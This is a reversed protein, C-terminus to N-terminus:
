RADLPGTGPAGRSVPARRLARGPALTRARSPEATADAEAEVAVEIEVGPVRAPARGLPPRLLGDRAVEFIEGRWVVRRGLLATAWVAATMLDRLPLLPLSALSTRDGTERAVAAAIAWRLAVTAALVDWGGAGFGTAALFAAALPTAFTTVYGLQGGPRSVRACRSWRVERDWLERARVTGLVSRVVCPAVVVERGLSAVRAGIQYDDALHGEVSAFGGVADLDARRIAVTAGMAFPLGLLERALIASPLFTVGMHLAELRSALSAPQEGRYPCTVLAVGPALLAGVVRRLYDPDVRMDADSAVLVDHRAERALAHLLSAKRNPGRARSVVVRAPVHPFERRLREIVPIAGDSPDEVGFLIEVEPYDQRFFTAFSEYAGPDLGRVPKLISVPPLVEPVQLPRRLLRRVALYAVVWYAWSAAVAAGLALVVLSV